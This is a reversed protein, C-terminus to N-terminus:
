MLRCIEVSSFNTKKVGGYRYKTQYVQEFDM